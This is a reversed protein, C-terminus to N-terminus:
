VHSTAQWCAMAWGWTRAFPSGRTAFCHLKTCGLWERKRWEWQVSCLVQFSQRLSKTKELHPHHWQWPLLSRSCLSWLKLFQKISASILRQIVKNSWASPSITLKWHTGQKSVSSKLAPSSEVQVLVTRSMMINQKNWQTEPALRPHGYYMKMAFCNQCTRWCVEFHHRRQLTPAKFDMFVEFCLQQM